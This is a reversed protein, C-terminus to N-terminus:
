ARNRPDTSEDRELAETLKLRVYASLTLGFRAAQVTLRQIWEPDARMDIRDRPLDDQNSKSKAVRHLMTTAM